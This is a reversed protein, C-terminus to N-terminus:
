RVIHNDSAHDLREDSASLKDVDKIAPSPLNGTQGGELSGKIIGVVTPNKPPPRKHVGGTQQVNYHSSPTMKREPSVLSLPANQIPSNSRFTLLAGNTLIGPSRPSRRSPSKRCDDSSNSDSAARLTPSPSSLLGDLSRAPSPPEPSMTEILGTFIIGFKACFSFFSFSVFYLTGFIRLM